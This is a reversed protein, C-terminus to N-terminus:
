ILKKDKLFKHVLNKPSDKGLDAQMNLERIEVDNIQNGVKNLVEKIEPHKKLVDQRIMPAAEYIPFTHLDDELVVFSHEVIKPDTSYGLSADITGKSLNLYILPLDIVKPDLKKVQYDKLFMQYEPRSIFEADLAFSLDKTKFLKVLESLKSIKMKSAAQSSLLICFNNDFGFPKLWTIQYKKEFQEKVTKYCLDKDTIKEEKLIELLGTGTYEPYVDIGKSNIAQFAVMTGELNYCRKVELSTHNEILQAIIEALINQETFNRCGVVIANKSKQYSYISEGIMAAFILFFVSFFVIIKRIFKNM